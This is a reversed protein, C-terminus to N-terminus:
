GGGTPYYRRALLAQLNMLRTPEDSATSLQGRAACKGIVSMTQTVFDVNGPAAIGAAGDDLFVNVEAIDAHWIAINSM